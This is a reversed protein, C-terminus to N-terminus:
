YGVAGTLQQQVGEFRWRGPLPQVGHDEPKMMLVKAAESLSCFPPGGVVRGFRGLLVTKTTNRGTGRPTFMKVFTERDAVIGGLHQVLRTLFKDMESQRTDSTVLQFGQETLPATFGAQWLRVNTTGQPGGYEALPIVVGDAKPLYICNHDPDQYNWAHKMFCGRIGGVIAGPLTM